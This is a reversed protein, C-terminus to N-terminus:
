SKLWSGNGKIGLHYLDDCMDIEWPLATYGATLEATLHLATLGM